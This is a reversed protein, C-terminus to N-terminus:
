SNQGFHFYVVRQNDTRVAAFESVIWQPEIMIAAIQGDVCLVPIHERLARPLKRNIMWRNLKQTHGGMGLPAFRDGERRTRLTVLAGEPISLRARANELPILSASLEWSGVRTVGPIQIVLEEDPRLSPANVPSASRNEYEIILADYNVHLRLGNGLLAITGHGGRLGMEVADLIHIYDPRDQASVLQGVSQIILRRALAPHLARFSERNITVHDDKFIAHTQAIQEVEASLFDDEAASIEALQALVSAIRPNLQALYPLTEHRLRNRLITTDTNTSDERPTLNHERCYAEIEARTVRLFPRILTLEPHHPVPSLLRMGALGRGGAGRFLHLLVTEAQDDAHHAVAIRNADVTRAVEALFDYRAKRAATEISLGMEQALTKVDTQGVTIPINWAACTTKVFEADAAGADGRLQHDFTATHLKFGSHQSLRHLVHLLALSDAGGSVGVVLSSGSPILNFKQIIQRVSELM